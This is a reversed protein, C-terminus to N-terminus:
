RDIAFIRRMHLSIFENQRDQSIAEASTTGTAQDSMLYGTGLASQM